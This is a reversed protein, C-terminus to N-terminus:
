KPKHFAYPTWLAPLQHLIRRDRRIRPPATEPQERRVVHAHYTSPAIELVRCIPEVGHTDRYADVISIMAEM